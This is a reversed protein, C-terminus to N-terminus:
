VMYRYLFTVIQARVCDADPSFTAASTGNTVGEGVAWAVAGAYYADAPVDAFGSGSAAAAGDYRWLFTVTQARTVTADPSFTTASTGNTIGQEVAWLVADHYYAGASVDDFPNAANGPEPSGAARWLFTVMQARTCSADPGFTTAGTGNTVGNEVAWAVADRYYAGAPVDTFVLSEEARETFAAEVTVRGRPMRFTYKTDSVKTLEIENGSGDLVTLRDLEYGDEAEVTIAVTTGYGARSPSVRVSGHDAEEVSVTYRNTTTTSPVYTNLDQPLMTDRLYYIDEGTVANRLNDATLVSSGDKAVELVPTTGGVTGTAPDMGGWYNQSVDVKASEGINTIKAYSETAYTSTMKNETITVIPNNVGNTDIRIARGEDNGSGNAWNEFTNETITITDAGRLSLASGAINCFQSGTVTISDLTGNNYIAVFENSTTGDARTLDQFISDTVTLSAGKKAGTIQLVGDKQSQNVETNEFTCNNVVVAGTAGSINVVGGTFTLDKLTIGGGSSSILEPRGGTLTDGASITIGESMGEITIGNKNAVSLTEDLEVSKLVVVTDGDAAEKVAEALDTYIKGNVRAVDNEALVTETGGLAGATGEQSAPVNSGTNTGLVYLKSITLEGEGPVPFAESGTTWSSDRVGGSVYGLRAEAVGNRNELTVDEVICDTVTGGNNGNETLIGLLGGVCLSTSNASAYEASASTSVTVDSVACGSLTNDMYFTGILGGVKRTGTVAVGSVTCDTTVIKGEGRYGVLGAVNDGEYDDEKYMGTVSSGADGIVHCDEMKAYGEGALGGVKYNGTIEISGQVTCNKVTGTYASGALAGVQALATIKVNELVINQLVGPANLCGFLGAYELAPADIALNSITHGQGDFTGAFAHKSSGIPTWEVGSLDLDADLKVTKGEFNKADNTRTSAYRLITASM